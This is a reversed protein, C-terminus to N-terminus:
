DGKSEKERRDDIEIGIQARLKRLANITSMNSRKPLLFSIENTLTNRILVLDETTFDGV